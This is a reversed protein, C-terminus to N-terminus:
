TLRRANARTPGVFSALSVVGARSTPSCRSYASTSGDGSWGDGGGSIAGRTAGFRRPWGGKTSGSIFARIRIGADHLAVTAGYRKTIHAAEVIPQDSIVPGDHPTRDNM